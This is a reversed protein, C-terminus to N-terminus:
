EPLNMKRLFAKYRWDNAFNKFAPHSVLMVLNADKEKYARDLWQLAMDHDGRYAYTMAVWFPVDYKESLTKLAENAEANRGNAQLVMALALLRDGEDEGQQVMELAAERKGEALLLMALSSHAWFFHPSLEVVKRYMAESDAFRGACYLADGRNAYAYPNLPDRALAARTQRDADDWHGLTASLMGSFMLAMSNNPDVSLAQRAEDASAAWDWDFTRHVYQLAAHADALDPSLQLAHQALRRAREYGDKPPFIGDDTLVIVNWALSSWALGFNPDLKVAQDLYAREAELAARNNQMDASLARLYLQYAELNETGGRQRTLPGGMLTIQLAQVVANAIDDQVKFVDSLDRDYTQSWLHYSTDARVLQATVRLRDGSKRVSGELVNAVNLERAIDAVKTQKGKFYFSSTRAPVHLDPAKALLDIIEEAMGDAFYEQDKKESMDVFPLVAISKDSIAAAPSVTAPTVTAVPATANQLASRNSLWLKGVLLALLLVAAVTAVWLRKRNPKPTSERIATAGGVGGGPLIVGEGPTAPSVLLRHVATVLEPLAREIKGGSADLWHSASLFYELGTPLPTTDLRFAVVPRRKASAREVERLVHQSGVSNGSLVVILIHASNIAQVIADAYFVGPTVDRPAIWCVVGGRELAACISDAAQKDASAYSIFVDASGGHRHMASPTAPVDGTSQGEGGSEAVDIGGVVNVDHQCISGTNM